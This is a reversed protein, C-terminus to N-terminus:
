LKELLYRRLSEAIKVPIGTAQSIEQASAEAIARVSPFHELLARRRKPGIGAVDDLISATAEAERITRHHTIAFRHAEDRIRQLLFRARPHATMDVPEASSPVFVEEHEKALAAVAVELGAKKAVEVAVGLQGKGGDALILDPLPLFKEDGQAARNLRRELMEALAKYDDPKEEVTRIRFRRYAKKDPLGDTFVVMAGVALHGGTNSVDYCEIRRPPNSMGLAQGLDEVAGRAVRRSEAETSVVRAVALEANRLAMEVLQRKEGRSPKALTVPGGRLEALMAAWESIDPPEHSVLIERPIEAGHAYHQSLFAAIAEEPAHREAQIFTMQNQAVLKGARVALHAVVARDAEQAAALVDRDITDNVVVVQQQTARHIARLRDRLVAAREFDLAHAAEKMDSELRQIVEDTRGALFMAAERVREAYEEPSVRGTCAGCRNLQYNLCPRGVPRGDLEKRCQRLGFLRNVLRMVRRMAKADPYPGFIRGARLSYVKHRKPDHFGRRQGPRVSRAAEPLDRLLMLRPYPEDTLLLYPYSKDDALRINYRPRHKKILTAELILAEVESGTVIWEVDAAHRLMLAHWPHMPRSESFHQRLRSRLDRAKGVYLVRGRKDKILYCGAAAPAQRVKEALEDINARATQSTSANM